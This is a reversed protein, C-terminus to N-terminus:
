TLLRDYESHSGIWFWLLGEPVEIAVARYHIGVRAVRYRGIAKFHLSPHSADVKLLGFNKDALERVARPLQRYRAWFDPTAFHRM